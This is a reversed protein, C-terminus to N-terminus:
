HLQYSMRMLQIQGTDTLTAATIFAQADTDYTTTSGSYARIGVRGQAM